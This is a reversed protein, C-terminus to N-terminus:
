RLHRHLALAALVAAAGCLAIVHAPALLDGLAGAGGIAAAQGTMVGTSALGIAQGRVAEPTADVLRRQLPLDYGLGVTGALM